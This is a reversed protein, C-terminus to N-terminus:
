EVEVEVVACGAAVVECVVEVAVVVVRCGVKGFPEVVVWGVQRGM